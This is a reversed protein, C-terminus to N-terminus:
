FPFNLLETTSLSLTLFKIAASVSVDYLYETRIRASILRRPKDSIDSWRQPRECKKIQSQVTYINHQPM